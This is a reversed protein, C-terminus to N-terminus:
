WLAIAMRNEASIQQVCQVPVAFELLLPQFTAKNIGFNIEKLKLDDQSTANNAFAQSRNKM